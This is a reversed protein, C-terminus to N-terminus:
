ESVTRNYGISSLLKHESRSLIHISSISSNTISGAYFHSEIYSGGELFCLGRGVNNIVRFYWETDVFWKLQNNFKHKLSYNLILVSTPGIFNIVPLFKGVWSLTIKQQCSTLDRFVRSNKIVRCPLIYCDSLIEQSEYLNDLFDFDSFTEDHHM